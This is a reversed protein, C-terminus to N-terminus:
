RPPTTVGERVPCAPPPQNFTQAFVTAERCPDDHGRVHRGDRLGALLSNYVLSVAEAESVGWGVVLIRVAEADAATECDFARVTCEQATHGLLWHSLEHAVAPRPEAGAALARRVLWIRFAPGDWIAVAELNDRILFGPTCPQALCGAGYALRVREAAAQLDQLRAAEAPTLSPRPRADQLQSACANLVLAVVALWIAAAKAGQWSFRREDVTAVDGRFEM